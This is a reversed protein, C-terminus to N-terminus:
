SSELTLSELGEQVLRVTLFQMPRAPAVQIEVILRGLDVSEPPNASADTIVQYAEAPRSGAFAGRQYLLELMRTMEDRIRARLRFSNPQFVLRNGERWVIRRLLTMLRRVNVHRLDTEESLTYASLPLFGRPDDRVLNVQAAFLTEWEARSILPEVGVVARLGENAPAIWAGRARARRAFVGAVAGEPALLRAEAIEADESVTWLWPHYLAGYSEAADELEARLQEQYARADEAHYHTPLSLLALLDGRAACFRVLATHIEILRLEDYADPLVLERGEAV